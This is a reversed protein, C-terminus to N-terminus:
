KGNRGYPMPERLVIREAQEMKWRARRLLHAYYNRENSPAARFQRWAAEFESRAQQLTTM